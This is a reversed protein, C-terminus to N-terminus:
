WLPLGPGRGKFFPAQFPNELTERFVKLAKYPFAKRIPSAITVGKAAMSM